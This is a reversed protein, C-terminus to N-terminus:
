HELAITDNETIIGLDRLYEQLGATDKRDVMFGDEFISWGIIEYITNDKSDRVDAFFDGREDLNIHYTYEM